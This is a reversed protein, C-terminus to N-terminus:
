WPEEDLNEDADDDWGDNEAAKPQEGFNKKANEKNKLIRIGEMVSDETYEETDISSGDAGTVVLEIRSPASVRRNSMANHDGWEDTDDEEVSEVLHVVKMKGHVKIKNYAKLSKKFKNALTSNEVIFSVAEIARYTVVYGHLVFRGTPKDNEDVEKEIGTYVIEQEWDNVPKYDEGFEVDSCLSIQNANFNTRRVTNGDKGTYSQFELQGRVFISEDDKLLEKVATAADFETLYQKINNGDEDKELGVNVGMLRWEPNKSAFDHRKAWEVEKTETKGDTRKSFYVSKRTFGQISPYLTLPIPNEEDGTVNYKVGFSVARKKTGSELTQETYFNKSKVGTSLGKIQFNGYTQKLGHEATKAM